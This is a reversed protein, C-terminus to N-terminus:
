SSPIRLRTEPNKDPNARYLLAINGIRQVLIASHNDCLQKIIEDRVDRDGARVKVKMLEHHALTSEYEALVSESLGANGVTIIPKLQHGRGRLYKKQSETLIM